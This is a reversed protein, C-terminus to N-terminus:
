RAEHATFVFKMIRITAVKYGKGYNSPNIEKCSINVLIDQNFAPLMALLV